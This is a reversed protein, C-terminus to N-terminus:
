FFCLINFHKFLGKNLKQYAVLLDESNTAVEQKSM